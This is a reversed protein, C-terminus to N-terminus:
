VLTICRQCENKRIYNNCLLWVTVIQEIQMAILVSLLCKWSNGKPGRKHPNYRFYQELLSFDIFSLLAELKSLPKWEYFQDLTILSQQRYMNQKDGKRHPYNNLIYIPIPTLM